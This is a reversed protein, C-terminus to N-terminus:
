NILLITNSVCYIAISNDFVFNCYINCYKMKPGLLIYQLICYVIYQINCYITEWGQTSNFYHKLLISTRIKGTISCDALDYSVTSKPPFFPPFFPFFTTTTM